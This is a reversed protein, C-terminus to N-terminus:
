KLPFKFRYVSWYYFMCPTVKFIESLVQQFCLPAPGSPMNGLRVNNGLINFIETGAKAVKENPLLLRWFRNLKFSWKMTIFPLGLYVPYIHLYIFPKYSSNLCYYKDSTNLKDISIHFYNHVWNYQLIRSIFNIIKLLIVTWVLIKYKDCYM